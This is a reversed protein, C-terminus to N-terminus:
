EFYLDSCRACIDMDEDIEDSVRQYSDSRYGCLSKEMNGTFDRMTIIHITGRRNQALYEPVERLHYAM